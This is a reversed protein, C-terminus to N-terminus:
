QEIQEITELIIAKLEDPTFPKTLYPRGTRELFMQTDGGVIDGTTFIVRYTMQPYQEQLWQYLEKGSMPPTKLDILLLDYQKRTLMRRAVLGNPAESVEFQEDALTRRYIDCITPEDEVILIRKQRSLRKM